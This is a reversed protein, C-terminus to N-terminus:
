NKELQINLLENLVKLDITIFGQLIKALGKYFATDAHAIIGDSLEDVFRSIHKDLFTHQEHLLYQVEALANPNAPNCSEICLQNLHFMFDLELGIHDDAEMHDASQYAFKGYIYRVALTTGQFILKDKTVYTSEYPLVEIDFPGIFMKTYDWHLSDYDENSNVPDAASCYHKIEQIGEKISESEEQFPFLDIMNQYIFPKLYERSPEEIFFRRLVDYAFERAHFIHSVDELTMKQQTAEM